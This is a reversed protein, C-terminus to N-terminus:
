RWDALAASDFYEDLRTIHGERVKCVICASLSVEKGGPLKAKLLHQEVFGGEFVELRRRTYHREPVNRIFSKLARLIKKPPSPRTTPTTGSSPTPRMFQACPKSTAASSRM